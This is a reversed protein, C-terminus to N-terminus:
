ADYERTIAARIDREVDLPRANPALDQWIGALLEFAAASVKRETALDDLAALLASALRYEMPGPANESDRLAMKVFAEMQERTLDGM